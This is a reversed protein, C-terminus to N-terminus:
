SAVMTYGSDVSEQLNKYINSIVQKVDMQSDDSKTFGMAMASHINVFGATTKYSRHNINHLIRKFTRCPGDNHESNYMAILFEDQELHGVLDMPRVTNCLRQAIDSILQDKVTKGYQQLIAELGDIKLIASCTSGGRSYTQKLLAAFRSHTDSRRGLGTINDVKCQRSFIRKLKENTNLLDNQTRIKRGTSYVRAALEEPNPPKVIYDDVGQAFATSISASDDKSTLLIVGTYHRTEKDLRRIRQTLQLGDMDRMLWDALVIDVPNKQLYIIAEAANNIIEISSYDANKLSRRICECSFRMDGVLLIKVSSRIM